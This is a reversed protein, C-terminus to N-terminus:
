SRFDNKGVRDKDTQAFLNVWSLWSILYSGNYPACLSINGAWAQICTLGYCFFLKPSHVIFKREIWSYAKRKISSMYFFDNASLQHYALESM